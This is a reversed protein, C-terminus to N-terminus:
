AGARLRARAADFLAAADCFGEPALTLREKLDEAVASPVTPAAAVEAMAADLAKAVGAEVSPLVGEKVQSELFRRHRDMLRVYANVDRM